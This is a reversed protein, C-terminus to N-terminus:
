RRRLFGRPLDSGSWPVRGRGRSSRHSGLAATTQSTTPNKLREQMEVSTDLHLFSQRRERPSSQRFLATTTLNDFNSRALNRCYGTGSRRGAWSDAGMRAHGTRMLGDARLWTGSDVLRSAVGPAAATDNQLGREFFADVETRPALSLFFITQRWAYAADKITALPRAQGPRV